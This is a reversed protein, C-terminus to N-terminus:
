EDAGHDDNVSASSCPKIADPERVHAFVDVVTNKAGAEIYFEQSSRDKQCGTSEDEVVHLLEVLEFWHLHRLDSVNEM